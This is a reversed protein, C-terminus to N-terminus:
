DAGGDVWTGSRGLNIWTSDNIGLLCIFDGLAGASDIAEATGVGVGDLVIQDGAAADLTVVGGGNADYFCASYGAAVAPLTVDVGSGSTYYYLQGLVTTSLLTQTSSAYTTVSTAGQITGTTAINYSGSSTLFDDDITAANIEITTDWETDRTITSAVRADAVTGATITTGDLGTGVKSGSLSGDALDALHINYQQVTSGIDSDLVIEVGGITTGATLSCPASTCTDSALIADLRADNDDIATKAGTFNANVQSAVATTGGTFTNTITYSGAWASAPMLLALLLLWRMSVGM